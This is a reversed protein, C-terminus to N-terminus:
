GDQGNVGGDVIVLEDPMLSQDLISELLNVLRRRRM